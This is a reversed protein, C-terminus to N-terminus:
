VMSKRAKNVAQEAATAAASTPSTNAPSNHATSNRLKTPRPWHENLAKNVCIGVWSNRELSIALVPEMGRTTIAKNRNEVVVM